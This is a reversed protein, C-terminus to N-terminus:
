SLIKSLSFLQKLYNLTELRYGLYGAIQSSFQKQIFNPQQTEGGGVRTKFCRVNVKRIYFNSLEKHDEEAKAM